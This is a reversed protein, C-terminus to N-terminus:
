RFLADCITFSFNNKVM